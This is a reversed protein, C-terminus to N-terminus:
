GGCFVKQGIHTWLEIRSAVIILFILVCFLFIIIAVKLKNSFRLNSNLKTMLELSIPILTEGSTEDKYLNIGTKDEIPNEYIRKFNNKPM